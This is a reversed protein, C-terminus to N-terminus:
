ATAQYGVTPNYTYGSVAGASPVSASGGNGYQSLLTGAAQGGARLLAANQAAQQNQANLARSENANFNTNYLDQGYSMLPANAQAGGEISPGMGYLQATQLPSPALSMAQMVAGTHDPARQMLYALIPSLQANSLQAATQAQQASGRQNLEEVGMGFQRNSQDETLGIGFAQSAFNRRENQLARAYQDRQLVETAFAPNSFGLGRGSFMARAAQASDREQEASLGAGLQLDALAQREMETRIDGPGANIAQLNLQDLLPSGAANRMAAANLSAYAPSIAGLANAYGPGLNGLDLLDAKRQRRTQRREMQGYQPVISLVNQASRIQDERAQGAVYPQWNLVNATNENRLAFNERATDYPSDAGLAGLEAQANRNQASQAKKAANAQMSAAAVAGGAVVVGAIIASSM